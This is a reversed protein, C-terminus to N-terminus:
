RGPAIRRARRYRRVILVASSVLLLVLAVAPAVFAKWQPQARAVAAASSLTNPSRPDVVGRIKEGATHADSLGGIVDHFSRGYLVFTGRCTYAYVTIGTGSALGLCGDVTVDVPVGHRRLTSNRSNEHVAAVSLGLVLAALAVMGLAVVVRVVRRADLRVGGGRIYGVADDATPTPLARELENV